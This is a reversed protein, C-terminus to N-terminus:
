GGPPHLMSYRSELKEIQGVEPDDMPVEFDVAPAADPAKPSPSLRQALEAGLPLLVDVQPATAGDANGGTLDRAMSHLLLLERYAPLEFSEDSSTNRRFLSADLAELAQHNDAWILQLKNLTNPYNELSRGHDLGLNWAPVQSNFRRNFRERLREYADEDGRRHFIELLKLYPQPSIGGDNRVHSMLLEIAAEDQGIALFFDAQQELDMLEDVSLERPPAAPTKVPASSLPATRSAAQTGRVALPAPATPMVPAVAFAGAQTPSPRLAHPEAFESDMVSHQRSAALAAAQTHLWWQTSRRTHAQRWWLAAVVLAMLGAVWALGYVLPNAYRESQTQAVKTQLTALAKQTAQNERMLKAMSSELTQIRERERALEVSLDNNLTVAAADFTRKNPTVLGSTMLASASELTLSSNGAAVRTALEQMRTDVSKETAKESTPASINRTLLPKPAPIPKFRQKPTQKSVSRPAEDIGEARPAESKLVVPPPDLLLVFDRSVKAGCGLTLNVRATPELLRATTTVRVTRALGEGQLSTRVQSAALKNDGSTVEAAVCSNLLTEGRELVVKASFDLAQGLSNSHGAAGFGLAHASQTAGCLLAVGLVTLTLVTRM